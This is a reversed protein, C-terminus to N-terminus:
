PFTSNNLETFFITTDGSAASEGTIIDQDMVFRKTKDIKFFKLINPRSLKNYIRDTSLTSSVTIDAYKASYDVETTDRHKELENLYPQITSLYIEVGFDSAKSNFGLHLMNRTRQILNETNLLTDSQTNHSTLLMNETQAQETPQEKNNHNQAVFEYDSNEIRPTPKHHMPKEKPHLKQTKTHHTKHTVPTKPTHHVNKMYQKWNKPVTNHIKAENSKIVMIPTEENADTTYYIYKNHHKPKTREKSIVTNSKKFLPKFLIGSDTLTEYNILDSLDQADDDQDNDYEKKNGLDFKLNELANQPDKMVDQQTEDNGELPTYQKSIGNISNYRFNDINEDLNAKSHPMNNKNQAVHSCKPFKPSRDTDVPSIKFIFQKREIMIASPVNKNAEQSSDIDRKEKSAKPKPKSAASVLEKRLKDEATTESFM